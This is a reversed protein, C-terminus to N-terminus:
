AAAKLRFQFRYWDLSLRVRPLNRAPRDVASGAPPLARPTSNPEARIRRNKPLAVAIRTENHPADVWAASIRQDLERVVRYAGPALQFTPVGESKSEGTAATAGGLHVSIAAAPLPAGDNDLVHVELGGSTQQAAAVGVGWILGLCASLFIPRVVSLFLLKM